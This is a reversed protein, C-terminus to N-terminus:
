ETDWVYWVLLISSCDPHSCALSISMCCPSVRPGVCISCIAGCERSVEVSAVPALCPLSWVFVRRGQWCEHIVHDDKIAVGDQVQLVHMQSDHV